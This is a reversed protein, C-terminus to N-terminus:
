NAQGLGTKELNKLQLCGLSNLVYLGLAGDTLAQEAALCDHIPHVLLALQEIRASYAAIRALPVTLVEIGVRKAHPAVHSVARHSLYVTIIPGPLEPFAKQWENFLTVHKPKYLQFVLRSLRGQEQAIKLIEIATTEFDTKIDLVLWADLPLADLAEEFRCDGLHLLPPQQPGHHCRVAGPELWFDAEFVRFGMIYSRRLAGVTNATAFKAEGMAHAILLPGNFSQRWSYDQRRELRVADGWDEQGRVLGLSDKLREGLLIQDMLRVMNRVAPLQLAAILAACIAVIAVRKRLQM